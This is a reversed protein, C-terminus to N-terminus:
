DGSRIVYSAALYTEMSPYDIFSKTDRYVMIMRPVIVLPNGFFRFPNLLDSPERVQEEVIGDFGASTPTLRENVVNRNYNWLPHFRLSMPTHSNHWRDLFTAYDIDKRQSFLTLLCAGPTCEGDPWTKEYAVPLAETVRYAGLFGEADLLGQVPADDTKRISIAAVKKRSFPIISVAPPAKETLTYHLADPQLRQELDRVIRAIRLAFDGYSINDGGRLLYIEKRMGM